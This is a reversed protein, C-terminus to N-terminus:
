AAAKTTEAPEPTSPPLARAVQVTGAVGLALLLGSVVWFGYAPTTPAGDAFESRHLQTILRLEAAALAIAGGVGAAAYTWRRPWPELLVGGALGAVVLVAASMFGPQPPLPPGTLPAFGEPVEDSIDTMVYAGQRQDWLREELHLRADGGVTLTAGYWTWSAVSDPLARTVTVFPLLAFLVAAVAFGLCILWRSLRM